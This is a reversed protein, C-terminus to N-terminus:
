VHLATDMSLVSSPIKVSLWMSIRANGTLAIITLGCAFYQTLHEKKLVLIKTWRNIVFFVLLTRLLATLKRLSKLKRKM